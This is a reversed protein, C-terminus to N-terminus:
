ALGHFAWGSALLARGVLVSNTVGRRWGSGTKHTLFAGILSSRKLWPLILLKICMKLWKYHHPIKKKTQLSESEKISTSVTVGVGTRRYSLWLARLTIFSHSRCTRNARVTASLGGGGSSQSSCTFLYAVVEISWRKDHLTIWKCYIEKFYNQKLVPHVTAWFLNNLLTMLARCASLSARRAM